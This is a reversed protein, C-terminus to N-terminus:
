MGRAMPHPLTLMAKRKVPLALHLQVNHRAGARQGRVYCKPLRANLELQCFDVFAGFTNVSHLENGDVGLTVHGRQPEIVALHQSLAHRPQAVGRVSDRNGFEEGGRSNARSTGVPLTTSAQSPAKVITVDSVNAGLRGLIS